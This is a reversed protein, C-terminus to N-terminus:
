QHQQRQMRGEERQKFYDTFKTDFPNADSKIKIHRRIKTNGAKKLYILKRNGIKDRFASYFRWNDGGVTTFYHNVIWRKGKRAHRNFAWRMLTQTIERDIM